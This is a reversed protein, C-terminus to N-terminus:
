EIRAINSDSTFNKLNYLWLVENLQRDAILQTLPQKYYRLDVMVIEEYDNALYPVFVHAFSDKILLLKKGNEVNTKIDVIAHNGDLYVTYQDKEELNALNYLSNTSTKEDYEVNVVLDSPLTFLNIQDLKNWFVGSKSYMTGKFSTSVNLYDPVFNQNSFTNYAILAGKENWHHDTRYYYDAQNIIKSLSHTTCNLQALISSELEKEDINYAFSPLKAQAGYSKSPVLLVTTALDTQQYFDNIAQINKSTQESSYDIFQETLYGDQGFYIGNNEISLTLMKFGSKVMIWNDRLVFQDSIYEDLDSTYNENFLKDLSFDPLQKLFRNENASFQKDPNLFNLGAVIMIFGVFIITTIIQIIKKM